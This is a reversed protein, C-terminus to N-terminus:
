GTSGSPQRSLPNKKQVQTNIQSQSATPNPRQLPHPLQHKPQQYHQQCQQQQQQQQNNGNIVDCNAVSQQASQHYNM